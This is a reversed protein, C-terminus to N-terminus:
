PTYTSNQAKPTGRGGTGYVATVLAAAWNSGDMNSNDLAPNLLERSIGNQASISANSYQTRDLTLTDTGVVRAIKVADLSNALALAGGYSYDVPAGGNDVTNTSAGLVAYGGAPLTVSSAILHYPRRGSAASDAIVLDKLDVALSGANYLEFWEQSGDSPSPSPNAMVENIVLKYEVDTSILVRFNFSSVGDPVSFKWTRSGSVENKDLIENYTHYAQNASTFFANGDQQIVSVTGGVGAPEELFFVNIGAASPTVGDPTGIAENMLNQVTVDFSFVDLGADYALNTSTLTVYTNQGGVITGSAGGTRPSVPECRVSPTGTVVALCDLAQLGDGVELSTRGGVPQDSCALLMAAAAIMPVVLRGTRAAERISSHM